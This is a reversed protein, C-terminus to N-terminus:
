GGPTAMIEDPQPTAIPALLNPSAALQSCIGESDRVIEMLVPDDPFEARVQALVPLAQPCFNQNARSLFALVTGYEVYYYAVTLNTLPLGEVAASQALLGQEVLNRAIENEDATCGAVSCKLAPSASEYNRSKIYIIGLQGYTNANTPDFTLAKEANRAAVFFEGQQSYAKAIEMYPIPNRVGLQENIAAAKAYYELALDYLREALSSQALHLYNRGIYVYLFTLNPSIEAAKLYQEIALRYQAISELVTAYVRHADMSDPALSIAQAAYQEAQSWKQQDLSVEAYFALALANRPDLQYARVAEGEAEKLLDQAEEAGVYSANWDLVFARIAHITSDDPNLEVARDISELAERLRERRQADNSLMTISYTQIRAKEAWAQANSPDIELARQYTDIADPRPPAPPPPDPDDLKGAQFYAQAELFYSDATRTPTPTPLFMPEVQGRRVGLLLWIGGLILSIWLLMRFFGANSKSQHFTPRKGTLEREM